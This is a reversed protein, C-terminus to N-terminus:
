AVRLYLIILVKKKDQVFSWAGTMKLAQILDDDSALPAGLTLNERITGYFLHASQNLLGTDRRIDAPDILSLDLGDLYINGQQPMQMGSLLQLLTSKGAGNRGLIAIKEGARIALQAIALNPKADDQNYKFLTGNLQYDGLLVSRHIM